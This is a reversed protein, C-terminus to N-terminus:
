VFLFKSIILIFMLNTNFVYFLLINGHFVLFIYPTFTIILVLMMTLNIHTTRTHQTVICYMELACLHHSSHLVLEFENPPWELTVYRKKGPFQVGM